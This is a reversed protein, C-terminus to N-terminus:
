NSSEGGVGRGPRNQFPKKTISEDTDQYTLYDRAESANHRLSKVKTSSSANANFASQRSINKNAKDILRNLKEPRIVYVM